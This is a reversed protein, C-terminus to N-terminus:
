PSSAALGRTEVKGQFIFTPRDVGFECPVDAMTLADGGSSLLDM